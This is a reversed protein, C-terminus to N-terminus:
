HNNERPEHNQTKLLIQLDSKCQQVRFLDGAKDYYDSECMGGIDSLQLKLEHEKAEWKEVLENLEYRLATLQAYYTEKSM